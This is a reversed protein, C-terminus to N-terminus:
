LAPMSEIDAFYETGHWARIKLYEKGLNRAIDARICMARSNGRTFYAPLHRLSRAMGPIQIYGDSKNIL